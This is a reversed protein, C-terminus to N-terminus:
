TKKLRRKVKNQLSLLRNQADTDSHKQMKSYSLSFRERPTQLMDNNSYVFEERKKRQPQQMFDNKYYDGTADVKNSTVFILLGIIFVIITVLQQLDVINLIYPSYGVSFFRLVFEIITFVIIYLFALLGKGKFSKHFITWIIIFLVNYGVRIGNLPMTGGNEVEIGIMKGSYMLALLLPVMAMSYSVIIKTLFTIIGKEKSSNKYIILISIILGLFVGLYIFNKDLFNFVQWINGAYTNLNILVSLLRSIIFASSLSIFVVDFIEIPKMKKRSQLWYSFTFIIIFSIIALMVLSVNDNVLEIQTSQEM